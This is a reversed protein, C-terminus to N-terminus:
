KKGFLSHSKGRKPLIQSLKEFVSSGHSWDGAHWLVNHRNQGAMVAQHGAPPVPNMRFSPSVSRWAYLLCDALDYHGFVPSRAYSTRQANWVANSMHSILEKAAPDIIIKNTKIAVRLANLAAERDQKDAASVTLKHITSLDLILRAECDSFRQAPNVILQRGNWFQLPADVPGFVDNELERIAEAVELTNAGRKAWCRKVVMQAREFDYYGTIIGCLDRVGPDIVSFGRAWRPREYEKVHLEENFEPFVVIDESRLRICYFERKCRDSDRGGLSNIHEERQAKGILPNDDITRLVHRDNAVCDATLHTDYWTGPIEPPTSNVLITAGLRWDSEGMLMPSIVSLIAYELREVFGAESITVGDCHRGRLGDPNRDIGVLRIISGNPFYIGAETGQFSQKYEPKIDIPCDECLAHFLPIVIGSIDKGFATAYMFHGGPKRIADELRILLSLFDKGWRRSVDFQFIRPYMGPMIREAKRESLAHEEWARYKDYVRKQDVHLKWRLKGARWLKARLAMQEEHSLKKTM